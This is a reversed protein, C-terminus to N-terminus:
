RRAVREFLRLFNEGVIGRVEDDSFGSAQLAATVAPLDREDRYGDMVGPVGNMDTGIGIHAAGAIEAIHRAHGALDGLDHVGRGRHRYPWLGILGGAGAIARLEEDSLFREFDQRARAGTHSSMVPAGSTEVIDLVTQRDAHAVDIVMGLENMRRVVDVGLPSLGRQQPRRVPVPGAYRAWPLCTTGLANDTM